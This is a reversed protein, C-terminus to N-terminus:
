WIRVLSSQFADRAHALQHGPLLHALWVTWSADVQQGIREPSLPKLQQFAMVEPETDLDEGILQRIAQKITHCVKPETRLLRKLYFYVRLLSPKGRMKM